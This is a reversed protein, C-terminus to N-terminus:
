SGGGDQTAKDLASGIVACDHLVEYSEASLRGTVQFSATEDDWVVKGVCNQEWCGNETSTTDEFAVLDNEWILNGNRDTLGTCQCLTSPDVEYGRIQNPLGWDTMEDQMILHHVPVPHSEYDESFAYTTEKHQIYSGQIWSDHNLIKAKCLYRDRM